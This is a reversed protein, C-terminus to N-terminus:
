ACKVGSFCVSKGFPLFGLSLFGLGSRSGSRAEGWGMEKPVGQVHRRGSVRSPRGEELGRM